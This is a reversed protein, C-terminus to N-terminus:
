KTKEKKITEVKNIGNVTTTLATPSAAVTAVNIANAFLLWYWKKGRITPRHVAVLSDLLDVGGMGSNYAQILHPQKVGKRQCAVRQKLQTFHAIFRGTIPWQTTM